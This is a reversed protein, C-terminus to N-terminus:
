SIANVIFQYESKKKKQYAFLSFINSGGFCLDVYMHYISIIGVFAAVGPISIHIDYVIQLYTESNCKM